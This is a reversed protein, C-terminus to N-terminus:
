DGKSQKEYKQLLPSGSKDIKVILSFTVARNVIEPAVGASILTAIEYDELKRPNNPPHHIARKLTAPPINYESAYAIPDVYSINGAMSTHAGMGALIKDLEPQQEILAAIGRGSGLGSDMTGM